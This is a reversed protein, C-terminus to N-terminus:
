EGKRGNGGGNRDRGHGGHGGHGGHMFMHLLPCALLLLWVGYASLWESLHAKHEAILFYAAVVAFGVFVWKAKSKMGNDRDPERRHDHNMFREKGDLIGM